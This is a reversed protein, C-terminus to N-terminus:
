RPVSPIAVSKNINFKQFIIQKNIENLNRIGNLSIYIVKYKIKNIEDKEILDKLSNKVYFTKGCGWKGNIMLAYDSYKTELYEKIIQFIYDM